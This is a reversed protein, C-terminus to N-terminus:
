GQRSTPPLQGESVLGRFMETIPLLYQRAQTEGHLDSLLRLLDSRLYWLTQAENAKIIADQVRRLDQQRFLAEPTLAQLIATRISELQGDASAPTNGTDHHVYAKVSAASQALLHNWNRMARLHNSRM